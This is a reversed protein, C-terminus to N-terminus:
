YCTNKNKNLIYLTFFRLVFAFISITFIKKDLIDKIIKIKKIQFLFIATIFIDLTNCKDKKSKQM